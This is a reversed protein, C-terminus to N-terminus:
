NLDVAAVVRRYVELDTHGSDRLWRGLERSFGPGDDRFQHLNLGNQAFYVVFAAEWTPDLREKAVDRRMGSLVEDPSRGGEWLGWAVGRFVRYARPIEGDSRADLAYNSSWPRLDDHAHFVEHMVEIQQGRPLKEALALARLRTAPAILLAALANVRGWDDRDALSALVPADGGALMLLLWSRGSYRASLRQSIAAGAPSTWDIAALLKAGADAAQNRKLLSARAIEPARTLALDVAARDYLATLCALGMLRDAGDIDLMTFRGLMQEVAAIQAFTRDIQASSPVRRLEISPASDGEGLAIVPPDLAALRVVFACDASQDAPAIKGAEAAAIAGEEPVARGAYLPTTGPYRDHNPPYGDAMSALEAAAPAADGLPGSDGAGSAIEPAEAPEHARAYIEVLEDAAFRAGGPLADRGALLDVANKGTILVPTLHPIGGVGGYYRLETVAGHGADFLAAALLQALPECSGGGELLADGVLGGPRGFYHLDGFAEPVAARLPVKAAAARLADLRAAYLAGARARDFDVGRERADIANADLLFEGLALSGQRRAARARAILAARDMAVGVRAVLPAVRAAYGARQLVIPAPADDRSAFRARIRPAGLLLAHALASVVVLAAVRVIRGGGATHKSKLPRRGPEAKTVVRV